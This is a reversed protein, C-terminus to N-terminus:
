TWDVESTFLLASTTPQTEYCGIWATAAAKNMYTPPNVEYETPIQQGILTCEIYLTIIVSENQNLARGLTNKINFSTVVVDNELSYDITLCTSDIQVVTQDAQILQAHVQCLTWDDPITDNITIKDIPTIGTSTIKNDFALYAPNTKEIIKTTGNVFLTVSNNYANVLTDTLTIMPTKTTTFKAYFTAYNQLAGYAVVGFAITSLPV